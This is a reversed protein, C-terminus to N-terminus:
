GEQIKIRYMVHDGEDGDAISHYENGLSHTKRPVIIFGPCLKELFYKMSENLCSIWSPTYNELYHENFKNIM